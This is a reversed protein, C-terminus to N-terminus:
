IILGKKVLEIGDIAADLKTMAGTWVSHSAIMPNGDAIIQFGKKADKILNYLELSIFIDDTKKDTM